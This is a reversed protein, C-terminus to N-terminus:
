NGEPFENDTSVPIEQNNNSSFKNQVQGFTTRIIGTGSKSDSERENRILVKASVVSDEESSQHGQISPM